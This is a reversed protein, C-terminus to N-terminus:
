PCHWFNAEKLVASAKLKLDITLLESWDDDIVESLEVSKTLGSGMGSSIAKM